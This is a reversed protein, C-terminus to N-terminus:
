RARVEAVTQIARENSGYLTAIRNRSYSTEPTLGVSQGACSWREGVRPRYSVSALISNSGKGTSWAFEDLPTPPPPPPEAPRAIPAAPRQPPPTTACAALTTALAALVLVARKMRKRLM